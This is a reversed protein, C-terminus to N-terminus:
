KITFKGELSANCDDGVWIMFDGPEPAFKMDERCFALDAPTLVFELEASEGAKLEVRKFGKLERVPRTTSAVMDSIYLQAVTAGDRNGTNTVRVNVIVDDGMGPEVNYVELSDFEFKTYSLGYGFPYLPTNPTLLYASKFYKTLNDFSMVGQLRDSPRGTAKHNYRIPIQGDCRPFTMALHGSPTHDGSLLDAVANGGESGPHWVVLLGDMLSEVAELAMPRGTVLLVVVPTGTRRVAELLEKQVQPLEVSTMSAAEGSMIGPYGLTLVAVDARRAAKVAEDVGGKIGEFPDCGKVVQVKGPFRSQLGKQVTVAKDKEGYGTWSGLMAGGDAVYPGILAIRSGNKLPLVEKDNKLLVMSERAVKRAFELHEPKYISKQAREVGGYRFPDEFLGLQYKVLLINRCMQDIADEDILGEEVLEEGHNLYSGSVMEMDLYAQLSKMAAEKKDAAVGHNVMEIIADYDSVVFGKFGLEDRLLDKLLWRSGSAPIGDYDNFSSMVSMAGADLAAKYPPLYRDRFMRESMDVTNYDRGAEPAGYAAFHKVCALITTSDSLDDGQYGEVMARAVAAGLYPDEGAGESVRGWRPDASIDCMPSFTWALGMAASEYAAIRASERIADMNWSCASALNIPFIVKCGHIIDFGFLIPIGLRSSDVALRQYEVIEEPKRVGLMSGVEGAKILEEINMVGGSPGTIVGTRPVVQTMQGLKERLTMKDMLDDVYKEAETKQVCSSLASIATLTVALYGFFRKMPNQKQVIRLNLM